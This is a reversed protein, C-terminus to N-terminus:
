KPYVYLLTYGGVIYHKGDIITGIMISKFLMKEGAKLDQKTFSGDSTKIVLLDIGNESRSGTITYDGYTRTCLDDDSTTSGIVAGECSDGGVTLLVADPSIASVMLMDARNVRIYVKPTSEGYNIIKFRLHDVFSEGTTVLREDENGDPTRINIYYKSGGGETIESNKLRFKYGFYEKFSGGLTTVVCESTCPGGCDSYEEGQNKV